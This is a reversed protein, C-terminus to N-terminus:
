PIYEPLEKIAIATLEEVIQDLMMNRSQQINNVFDNGAAYSIDFTSMIADEFKDTYNDTFSRIHITAAPYSMFTAVFYHSQTIPAAYHTLLDRADERGASYRIWRHRNIIIELFTYYSESYSYRYEESVTKNFAVYYERLAEQLVEVFELPHALNKQCGDPIKKVSLMMILMGTNKKFFGDTKFDWFRQLLPVGHYDSIGAAHDLDVFEIMDKAPFDRSFNEPMPFTVRNGSLNIQRQHFIPDVAEKSLGFHKFLTTLM